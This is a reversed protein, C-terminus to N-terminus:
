TTITVGADAIDLTWNDIVQRLDDELQQTRLMLRRLDFVEDGLKSVRTALDFTGDPGAHPIKHYGLVLHTQSIAHRLREVEPVLWRAAELLFLPSTTSMNLHRIIDDLRDSM